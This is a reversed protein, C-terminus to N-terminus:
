YTVGHLTKRFNRCKRAKRAPKDRRVSSVAAGSASSRPSSNNSYQTPSHDIRLPVEAALPSHSTWRDRTNLTDLANRRTRVSRCRRSYYKFAWEYQLAEKWTRFGSIVCEFKWPGRDRTRCAGGALEGNHQRLRKRPDVTAGIYARRGSQIWYVFYMPSRADAGKQYM